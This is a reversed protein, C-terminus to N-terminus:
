QYRLGEKKLIVCFQLLTQDMHVWLAFADNDDSHEQALNQCCLWVWVQSSKGVGPSGYVRLGNYSEGQFNDLEDWLDAAEQRFFLIKEMEALDLGAIDLGGLAFISKEKPRKSPCAAIERSPWIGFGSLM